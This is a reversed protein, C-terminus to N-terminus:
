CGSSQPGQITCLMFMIGGAQRGTLFEKSGIKERQHSDLTPRCGRHHRERIIKQGAFDPELDKAIEKGM